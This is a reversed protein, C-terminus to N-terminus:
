MTLILWLQDAVLTQPSLSSLLRSENNNSSPPIKRHSRYKQHHGLDSCATGALNARERVELLITNFWRARAM